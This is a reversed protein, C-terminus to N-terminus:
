ARFEGHELFYEAEEFVERRFLIPTHNFPMEKLPFDGLRAEELAVVGDHPTPIPVPFLKIGQVGAIIGMQVNEPMSCEDFIGPPSRPM